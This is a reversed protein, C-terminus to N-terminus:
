VQYAFTRIDIQKRFRTNSQSQSGCNSNIMLPAKISLATRRRRRWWGLLGASALILGPLGAGLIPAPAEVIIGDQTVGFGTATIIYKETLTGSCGASFASGGGPCGLGVGQISGITTFTASGLFVNEFTSGFSPVVVYADEQVAWGLSVFNGIPLTNVTLGTILPPVGGHPGRVTFRAGDLTVYATLTGPTTSSAAIVDSYLASSGFNSGPDTVGFGLGTVSISTFTGYSLGAVNALGDGTAVTTIAGGNVGDEQLQITVTNAIADHMLLSSAFGIISLAALAASLKSKM